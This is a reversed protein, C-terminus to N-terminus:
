WPKQQQWNNKILSELTSIKDFPFTNPSVITDKCNITDRCVITVVLAVSSWLWDFDLFWHYKGYNASVMLQLSVITKHLPAWSESTPTRRIRCHWTRTMFQRWCPLLWPRSTGWPPPPPLSEGQSVRHLCSSLQVPSFEFLYKVNRGASFPVLPLM